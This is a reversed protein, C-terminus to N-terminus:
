QGDGVDYKVAAEQDVYQVECVFEVHSERIAKKIRTEAETEAENKSAAASVAEAEAAHPYRTYPSYSWYAQRKHAPDSSATDGNDSAILSLPAAAALAAIVTLLLIRM